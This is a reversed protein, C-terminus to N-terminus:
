PKRSKHKQKGQSASCSTHAPQSAQKAASTSHTKTNRTQSTKESTKASKRTASEVGFFILHCGADKLARALEEDLIDPRTQCNFSIGTKREKLLRCIELTRQKELTFNDDVFSAKKVGHKTVAAEIENVVNEPSRSRYPTGPMLCYTCKGPCGRSTIFSHHSYKETPFLERVPHPLADLNKNCALKPTKKKDANYLGPIEEERYTGDILAKCLRTFSQEAEGVIGYTLNMDAVTEPLATVHPGGLIIEGPFSAAKLSAAIFYCSRLTTSMVSLGVIRPKEKLISDIVQPESLSLIDADIATTAFGAKKLSAALYGLGLPMYTVAVGQNFSLRACPPNVLLVDSM